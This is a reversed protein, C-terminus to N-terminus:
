RKGRSGISQIWPQARLVGRATEARRDFEAGKLALKDDGSLKVSCTAVKKMLAWYVCDHLEANFGATRIRGHRGNVRVDLAAIIDALKFSNGNHFATFDQLTVERLWKGIGPDMTCIGGRAFNARAAQASTFGARGLECNIIGADFELNRIALKVKQSAM